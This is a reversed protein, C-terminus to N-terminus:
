EDSHYQIYQLEVWLRRISAPLTASLTFSYDSFVVFADGDRSCCIHKCVNETYTSVSLM